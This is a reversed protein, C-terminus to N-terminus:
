KAQVRFEFAKEIIQGDDLTAQFTVKYTHGLIGAEIPICVLTNNGEADMEVTPIGLVTPAAAAKTRNDFDQATVSSIYVGDPLDLRFDVGLNFEEVPSKKFLYKSYCRCEDARVVQTIYPNPM